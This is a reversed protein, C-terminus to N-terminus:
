TSIDVIELVLRKVLNYDQGSNSRFSIDYDNLLKFVKIIESETFNNSWKIYKSVLKGVFYPPIKMSSRIYDTISQRGSASKIYLFCKFMRYVLTVLGIMSQNEDLLTKLAKLSGKKDRRGLCDVLDFIKMSYVRSVLYRVTDEDIVKKTESAIYNYLKEYEKKLLSLDLNVNEILLSAAPGTFAIGDSRSKEDLWSKLEVGGPARLQKITGTKKILDVLGQNLKKKLSTLIFVIDRSKENNISVFDMIKKRLSAPVKDIYKIVAIKKFSFLSPTSIYNNFEEEDIEEAGDFVKFDTDINIKGKLFEEISNIREDLVGDSSSIYLYCPELSDLSMSDKKSRDEKKNVM